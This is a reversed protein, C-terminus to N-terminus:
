RLTNQMPWVFSAGKGPHKFPGNPWRLLDPECALYVSSRKEDKWARPRAKFKAKGEAHGESFLPKQKFRPRIDFCLITDSREKRENCYHYHYGSQGHIERTLVDSLGSIRLFFAFTRDTLTSGIPIEQCAQVYGGWIPRMEFRMVISGLTWNDTSAESDLTARGSRIRFDPERGLDEGIRMIRADIAELLGPVSSMPTASFRRRIGGESLAVRQFQFRTWDGSTHRAQKPLRLISDRSYSRSIGSPRLRSQKIRNLRSM